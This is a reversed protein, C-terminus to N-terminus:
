AFQALGPAKTGTGIGANRGETENRAVPNAAKCAVGGEGFADGALPSAYLLPTLGYTPGASAADSITINTPDLLPM